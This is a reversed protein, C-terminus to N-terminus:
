KKLQEVGGYGAWQLIANKIGEFAVNMEKETMSDKIRMTSKIRWQNRIRHQDATFQELVEKRDESRIAVIRGLATDPSIGVLLDRFEDWKM